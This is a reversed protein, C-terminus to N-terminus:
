FKIYIWEAHSEKWKRFYSFHFGVSLHTTKHRLLDDDKKPVPNDRGIKWWIRWKESMKLCFWHTLTPSLLWQGVSKRNTESRWPNPQIPSVQSVSRSISTILYTYLMYMDDYINEFDMIEDSKMAPPLSNFCLEFRTKRTKADTRKKKEPLGAGKYSWVTLNTTIQTVASTSILDSQILPPLPPFHFPKEWNAALVRVQECWVNDDEKAPM